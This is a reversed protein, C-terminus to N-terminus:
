DSVNGWNLSKGKMNEDPKALMLFASDPELLPYVSLLVKIKERGNKTLFIPYTDLVKINGFFLRKLEAIITQLSIPHFLQEIGMGPLMNVSFNCLKAWMSNAGWVYFGKVIVAPLHIQNIFGIRPQYFQLYYHCQYCLCDCEVNANSRATFCVKLRKQYVMCEGCNNEHETEKWYKWCNPIICFLPDKLYKSCLEPPIKKGTSKLFKVLEEIPIRYSKGVHDAFLKKRRIWYGITSRGVECLKSAETVSLARKGNLM